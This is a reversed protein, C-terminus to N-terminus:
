LHHLQTSMNADQLEVCQYKFFAQNLGIQNIM